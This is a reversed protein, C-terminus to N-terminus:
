AGAEVLQIEESTLGFLEFVTADISDQLAGIESAESACREALTAIAAMAANSPDYQMAPLVKIQPAQFQLYGGSMRLAGFYQEYVWTMLRSNLVGLLFYGASGDVFVFNTNVSAFVGESDFAAEIRHAIKAFVIKALSYQSRRNESIIRADDKLWPCSYTAGGHTFRERGWLLAYPDITGTNVVPWGRGKRKENETIIASYEDAEGATTSANV